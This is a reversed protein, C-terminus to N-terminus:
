PLEGEDDMVAKPELHGELGFPGYERGLGSQKFGGFPATPESSEARNILVRGAVLRAAVRRARSLDTGSVYAALGYITGNAIDIAQAETDYPLLCLVPGFIEEQAITMDPSVNEFVTPKVFHGHELGPPHGPGGMLLKAGEDIGLHIYRQVRDFQTQSVLPGITTAEDWPDGVKVAAVERALRERVEGLRSRPVLLRTGAVCAQGSNAFAIRVALPIARDLDADDLIINASKGGLELTVRKITQSAQQLIRKGVRTSGTFSILAIEPHGSIAEGVVEGTGNVVNVVGAPLGAAHICELLVNTQLASLESPKVVATCGAAIATALKSCLLTYNANWPTIIGVVGLPEMRVVARGIRREFAFTELTDRALLFARAAFRTRAITDKLPSGYEDMTARVLDAERAQVADHLRRLLAQREAVDTRSFAPFAARAAAAARDVDEADGLLTRGIIVKTAPNIQAHEATGHPRVFAGNIYIRDVSIM